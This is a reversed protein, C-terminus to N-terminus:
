GVSIGQCIGFITPCGEQQVKENLRQVKRSLDPILTEGRDLFAGCLV